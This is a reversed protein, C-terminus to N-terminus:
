YQVYHLPQSQWAASKVLTAKQIGSGNKREKEMFAKQM